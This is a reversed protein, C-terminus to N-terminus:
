RWGERVTREKGEKGKKAYNIHYSFFIGFSVFFFSIFINFSFLGSFVSGDKFFFKGYGHKANNAWEGEYRAGSAYSFVGVGKRKGDM